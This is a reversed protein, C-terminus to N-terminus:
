RRGTGTALGVSVGAATGPLSLILAPQGGSYYQDDIKPLVM